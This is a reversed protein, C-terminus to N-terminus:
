DSDGKKAKMEKNLRCNIEFRWVPMKEYVNKTASTLFVENFYENGLLEQIFNQIGKTLQGGEKPEEKGDENCSYATIQVRRDSDIRFNTLWVHKEPVIATLASFTTSWKVLNAGSLQNLKTIDSKLRILDRKLRDRDNIKSSQRKIEDALEKEEQKVDDNWTEMQMTGAYFAGGIAAIGILFIIVALLTEIPIPPKARKETLLNIRIM